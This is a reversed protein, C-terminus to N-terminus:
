CPAETSPSGRHDMPKQGGGQGNRGGHLRSGRRGSGFGRRRRIGAEAVVAHQIAQRRIGGVRDHLVLRTVDPDARAVSERSEVAALEANEAVIAAIKSTGIDLGVILNKNEKAKSM